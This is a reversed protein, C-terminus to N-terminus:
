TEGWEIMERKRKKGCQSDRPPKKATLDACKHVVLELILVLNQFQQSKNAFLQQDFASLPDM